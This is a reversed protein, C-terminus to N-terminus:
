DFVIDILHEEWNERNRSTHSPAEEPEMYYLEDHVPNYIVFSDVDGEGYKANEVGARFDVCIKQNGYREGEFAYKVQVRELDDGLDVIFDYREETTPYSVAFGKSVFYEEAKLEGLRGNKHTELRMKSKHARHSNGTEWGDQM